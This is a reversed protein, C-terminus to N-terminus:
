IHILSLNNEFSDFLAGSAKKASAHVGVGAGTEIKCGVMTVRGSIDSVSLNARPESGGGAGSIVTHALLVSGAHEAVVGRWYGAGPDASDGILSVFVSGGQAALSGRSDSGAGLFLAAGPGFRLVVGSELTLTAGGEVRLYGLIKYPSCTSTLTRDADLTASMFLRLGACPGDLDEKDAVDNTGDGDSDFDDPELADHKGDGDSDQPAAASGVEELASKGDNDTDANDPDTGLQEEEENTLGDGDRDNPDPGTDVASDPPPGSDPGGDSFILGESAGDREGLDDSGSDDSCACLLAVFLSLALRKLVNHFLLRSPYVAM